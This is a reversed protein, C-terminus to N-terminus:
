WWGGKVGQEWGGEVGCEGAQLAVGEGWLFTEGGQM